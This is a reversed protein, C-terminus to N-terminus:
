PCSRLSNSPTNWCFPMRALSCIFNTVSASCTWEDLSWYARWNSSNIVSNPMSPENSYPPSPHRFPRKGMFQTLSFGQVIALPKRNRLSSLPRNRSGRFQDSSGAAAPSCKGRGVM